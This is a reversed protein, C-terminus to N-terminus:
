KRMDPPVPLSVQGSAAWEAGRTFTTVFAPTSVAPGDHGLMLAFVRGKGFPVTWLMPQHLGPGPTPQKAKGQYLAHDDWATALVHYSGEPQWKLNAYLEDNPQPFHPKLGKTIPHDREVLDGDLM